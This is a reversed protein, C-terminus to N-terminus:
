RRLNRRLANRTTMHRVLTYEPFSYEYALNSLHLDISSPRLLNPDFPEVIAHGNEALVRFDSDTLFGNM